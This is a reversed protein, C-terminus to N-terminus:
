KCKGSHSNSGPVIQARGTQLIIKTRPALMINKHLTQSRINRCSGGRRERHSGIKDIAVALLLTPSTAKAMKKYINIKQHVYVM